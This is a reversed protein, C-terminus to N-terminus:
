KDYDIINTVGQTTVEAEDWSILTPAKQVAEVATVRADIANEAEVTIAGNNISINVKYKNM